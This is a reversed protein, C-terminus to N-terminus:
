LPVGRERAVQHIPQAPTDGDRVVVDFRREGLLRMLRTELRLTADLRDKLREPTEVYLDIDGGRAQDDTRSGFLYVQAEAGMCEAVAAKISEIQETDLRM